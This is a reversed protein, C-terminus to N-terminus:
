LAFLGQCKRGSQSHFADKDRLSDPLSMYTNQFVLSLPADIGGFSCPLKPKQKNTTKAKTKVSDQQM